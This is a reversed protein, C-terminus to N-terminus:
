SQANDIRAKEQKEAEWREEIKKLSQEACWKGIEAADTHGGFHKKLQEEIYTKMGIIVTPM